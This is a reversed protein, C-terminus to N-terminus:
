QRRGNETNGSQYWNTVFHAFVISLWLQTKPDIVSFRSTCNLPVCSTVHFVRLPFFWPLGGVGVIVIDCFMCCPLVSAVVELERVEGVSVATVISFVSKYRECESEKERYM